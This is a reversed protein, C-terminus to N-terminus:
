FLEKKQLMYIYLRDLIGPLCMFPFIQSPPTPVTAGGFRHRFEKMAGFLARGETTYDLLM